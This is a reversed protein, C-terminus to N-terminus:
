VLGLVMALGLLLIILGAVLHLYRINKDKWGSVDQVKAVGLYVIGTIILMPLIFVLNYLLLWPLAKLLGLTCLIGGCIVYPGITCPLLFVTVFIGVVLAGKPSTIGSIIKKVRPRLFLPMETAFGGPKYKVFDKINLIGLIIALAGLVKYLWLRIVALSQTLQFFRIIVLGYFLYMVFVSFCFALGALLVKKKNKPNYTLIAILILTLVALACPNIADVAALSLIKAATFQPKTSEGFPKSPRGPKISFNKGHWIEFNGSLTTFDLDNVNVFTGDALPCKNGKLKKILYDINNLIPGDGAVYENQNFIILPIGLGSGYVENYQLILPGNQKHQSIEYEIVVLNPYKKPLDEHIVPSVKACHPCNDSTFYVLCTFDNDSIDEQAAAQFPIFLFLLFYLLVTLSIYTKRLM